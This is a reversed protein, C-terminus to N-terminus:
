AFEGEVGPTQSTGPKRLGMVMSKTKSDYTEDMLLQFDAGTRRARCLHPYSLTRPPNLDARETVHGNEVVATFPRLRLAQFVM